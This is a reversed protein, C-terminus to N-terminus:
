QKPTSSDKKPQPNQNQLNILSDIKTNFTKEFDEIALKMSNNISEYLKKNTFYSILKLQSLLTPDVLTTFRINKTEVKEM